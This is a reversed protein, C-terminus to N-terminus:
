ARKGKKFTLADEPQDMINTSITVSELSLHYYQITKTWKFGSILKKSITATFKAVKYVIHVFHQWYASDTISFVLCNVVLPLFFLVQLFWFRKVQLWWEGKQIDFPIFTGLHTQGIEWNSGTALWSLVCHSCLCKLETLRTFYKHILILLKLKPVM